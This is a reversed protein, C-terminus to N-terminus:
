DTSLALAARAIRAVNISAVPINEASTDVTIDYIRYDDPAAGHVDGFYERQLKERREIADEAAFTTLLGERKMIRGVRDEWSAFLGVKVAPRDGVQRKYM